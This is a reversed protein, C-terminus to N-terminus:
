LPVTGIKMWLGSRWRAWLALGLLATYLAVAIWGGIVGWGVAPLFTVFGEGPAFSLIHVLPLFFFATLVMPILMPVRADAAGRLCFASGLNLADFLQYAAAIWLLKEGVALTEAGVPDHVNVFLRLVLPGAAALVFGFGGMYLLCLRIIRNGLIRAWAPDGAGISQGVLTIGALGLGITPFFGVSTLAFLIQSAAGAVAGLHVQMLQFLALGFLDSATGLGMMFGLSILHALARPRPWHCQRTGYLRALTPSLFIGLGLLAGLLAALNSAWASGALGWGAHFILIENLPINLFAVLASLGLSLRSRGIGNFFSTLVWLAIASPLGEMRAQWFETAKALIPPTLEFPRFIVDGYQALLGFPLFSLLMAWLGTWVAQGAEMRRGGGEAQAVLTQVAIGAGGFVFSMLVVPLIIAGMASVSETGLRSAFWTDTLNLVAQIASNLILPLALRAVARYDVRREGQADLRVAPCNNSQM